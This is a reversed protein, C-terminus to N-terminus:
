FQGTRLMVLTCAEFHEIGADTLRGALAPSESGPNFIVRGPNLELIEEILPASRAAGVYLTLTHVQGEIAALSPAVPLGEITEWRPHVPVVRYGKELLLRVAQNAYRHPKPSAGLVAVRHEGPVEPLGM